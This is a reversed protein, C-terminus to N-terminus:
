LSPNDICLGAIGHIFFLHCLILLQQYTGLFAPVHLTHKITKNVTLYGERDGRGWKM